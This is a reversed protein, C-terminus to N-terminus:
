EQCFVSGCDFSRVGLRRCRVVRVLFLKNAPLQVTVVDEPFLQVPSYFGLGMRSIDKLYIALEQGKRNIVGKGRLFKRHYRRRSDTRIPQEGKQAWYDRQGQPLEAKQEVSEWLEAVIERSDCLDLM